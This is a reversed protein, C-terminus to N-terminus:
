KLTWKNRPWYAPLGRHRESLGCVPRFPRWSSGRGPERRDFHVPDAVKSASRSCCATMARWYQRRALASRVRTRRRSGRATTSGSSLSWRCIVRISGEPRQVVQDRDAQGIAGFQRGMLRHDLRRQDWGGLFLHTREDGDGHELSESVRRVSRIRLELAKAIAAIQVYPAIALVDTGCNKHCASDRPIPLAAITLHRRPIADCAVTSQELSLVRHRGVYRPCLGTKLRRRGANNLGFALQRRGDVIEIADDRAKLLGSTKAVDQM